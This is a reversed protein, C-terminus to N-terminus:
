CVVLLMQLNLQELYHCFLGRIVADTESFCFM